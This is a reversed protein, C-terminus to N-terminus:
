NGGTMPVFRVPLVSRTTVKGDAGKRLLLLDQRHWQAGVPIVMRGGPKLQEILAQPIQPAAATVLIADFPAKEPWGLYGNGIRVEVNRYGLAQLRSQAQRGLPEVLEISYVSEVLEALVAAQYGSGTGIELVTDGAKPEILDTSLAVIFPQSITQGLGIPLPRNAYAQAALDAPVFRHRPVKAFAQLVRETLRERGTERGLERAISEIEAVMRRRELAYEDQALAPAAFAAEALLIAFVILPVCALHTARNRPDRHYAGYSAMHRALSKM